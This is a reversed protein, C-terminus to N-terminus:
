LNSSIVEGNDCYIVFSSQDGFENYKIVSSLNRGDEKYFSVKLLTGTKYDFERISSITKGDARYTINKVEKGTDPNYETTHSLKKGEGYFTCKLIQGKMNLVQVLSLENDRDYIRKVSSDVGMGTSGSADLQNAIM